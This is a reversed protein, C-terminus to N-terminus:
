YGLAKGKWQTWMGAVRQDNSAVILNGRLTPGVINRIGYGAAQPSSDQWVKRIDYGDFTALIFSPATTGEAGFGFLAVPDDGVRTTYSIAQGLHKVKSDPHDYATAM